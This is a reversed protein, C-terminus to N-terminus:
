TIIPFTVPKSKPLGEITPEVDEKLLVFNQMCSPHCGLFKEPFCRGPSCRGNGADSTRDALVADLIRRQVAPPGLVLTQTFRLALTKLNQLILVPM